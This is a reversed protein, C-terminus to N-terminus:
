VLALAANMARRNVVANRGFNVSAFRKGDDKVAAHSTYETVANVTDYLSKGENGKGSYFLRRINNYARVNEVPKQYAAKVVMELEVETASALSLQEAHEAYRAMNTNVFDIVETIRKADDHIRMTHRLRTTMDGMAMAFTNGCIVRTDTVGAVLAASGDHSNMLTIMGKHDEGAINYGETMQAQIFVKSGVGLYGINVIELLGEGVLPQVFDKLDSNQFIQYSNSTIGLVQNTDDRLQAKKGPVNYQLGDVRVHLDRSIVNWDLQDKTAFM